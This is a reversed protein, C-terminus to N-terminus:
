EHKNCIDLILCSAHVPKEEILNVDHEFCNQMKRPLHIYSRSDGDYTFGERHLRVIHIETDHTNWALSMVEDIFGGDSFVVHDGSLNVADAARRGFYDKGFVPKIVDESIWILFQRPSKGGLLDCPVEKTKRDNYLHMFKAYGFDGLMSRAIDFMPRKFMMMEYDCNAEILNAITDKGAGPPASLIIVKKM